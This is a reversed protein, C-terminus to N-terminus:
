SGADREGIGLKRREAATLPLDAQSLNGNQERRERERWDGRDWSGLGGDYEPDAAPGDEPALDAILLFPREPWRQRVWQRHEISDRVCLCSYDRTDGYITCGAHDGAECPACATAVPERQTTMVRGQHRSPRDRKTLVGCEM